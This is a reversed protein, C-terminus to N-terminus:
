LGVAERWTKAMSRHGLETPHVGDAALEAPARHLMERELVEQFPVFVAGCRWEGALATNADNVIFAPLDLVCRVIEHADAGIIDDFKGAPASLIRGPIPEIIGPYALAFGTLEGVTVGAERCVAPKELAIRGLAAAFGDASRAEIDTRALLTGERVLGLKIRTGGPDCAFHVM